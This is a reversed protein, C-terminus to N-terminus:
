CGKVQTGKQSRVSGSSRILPYIGSTHAPNDVPSFRQHQNKIDATFPNLYMRVSALSPHGLMRAAALISHVTVPNALLIGYAM